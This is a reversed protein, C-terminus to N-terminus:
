TGVESDPTFRHFFVKGKQHKEELGMVGSLNHLFLLFVFLYM